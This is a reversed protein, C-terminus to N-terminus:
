IKDYDQCVIGNELTQRSDTFYIKTTSLLIISKKLFHEAQFKKIKPRPTTPHATFRM